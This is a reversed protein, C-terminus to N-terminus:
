EKVKHDGAQGEGERLGQQLLPLRRDAPHVQPHRLEPDRVLRAQGSPGLGDPQEPRRADEARQDHHQVPVRDPAAATLFLLLRLTILDFQEGSICFTM